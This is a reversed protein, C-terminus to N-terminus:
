EVQKIKKKPRVRNQRKNNKKASRDKERKSYLRSSM